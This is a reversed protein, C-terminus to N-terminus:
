GYVMMWGNKRSHANVYAAIDNGVYDDGDFFVVYEPNYKQAALIGILFKSAMNLVVNAIHFYGEPKTIVFDKEQWRNWWKPNALPPSLNGLRDFNKLVDDGHCPIDVEVFETYTNILEEHHFLPLKKDCVVIVRFNHDSQSCVSFLTNNLLKWVEDYSQSNEPHKICAVFVLM